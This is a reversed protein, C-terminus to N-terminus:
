GGFTIHTGGDNPLYQKSKKNMMHNQKDKTMGDNNLPKLESVVLINM